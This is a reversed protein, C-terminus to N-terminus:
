IWSVVDLLLATCLFQEVKQYDTHPQVPKKLHVLNKALLEKYQRMGKYMNRKYTKGCAEHLDYARVNEKRNGDIQFRNLM